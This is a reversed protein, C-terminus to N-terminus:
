RMQRVRLAAQEWRKAEKEEMGAKAARAQARELNAAGHNVLAAARELEGRAAAELLAAELGGEEISGTWILGRANETYMIDSM